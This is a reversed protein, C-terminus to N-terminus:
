FTGGDVPALLFSDTNAQYQIVDGDERIGMNMDTANKISFKDISGAGVYKTSNSVVYHENGGVRVKVTPNNRVIAKM